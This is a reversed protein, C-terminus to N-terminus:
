DEKPRLNMERLANRIAEAIGAAMTDARDHQQTTRDGIAVRMTLRSRRLTREVLEDEQEKTFKM